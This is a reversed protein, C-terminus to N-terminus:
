RAASAKGLVRRRANRSACALGSRGRTPVGHGRAGSNGDGPRRARRGLVEVPLDALLWALRTVDYGADFVILVAPNGQRWHGAKILRTVVDRVQGATVETEDDDPRLRVADLM